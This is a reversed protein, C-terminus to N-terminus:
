VENTWLDWKTCITCYFEDSNMVVAEGQDTSKSGKVHEKKNQRRAHNRATKAM